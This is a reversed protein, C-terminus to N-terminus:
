NGKKKKKCVSRLLLSASNYSEQSSDYYRILVDIDPSFSFIFAMVQSRILGCGRAHSVEGKARCWWGGCFFLFVITLVAMGGRPTHAEHMDNRGNCDQLRLGGRCNYMLREALLRKVGGAYSDQM